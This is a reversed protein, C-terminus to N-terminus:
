AIRDATGVTRARWGIVVALVLMLMANAPHFAAVGPASTRANPLATQVIYLVFLLVSLSIQGRPLRGLLAAVLVVLALVGMVTYGFSRHAEFDGAGGLETLAQGALYGQVLVGGAFLWAAGIHIWRGWAKMARLGGISLCGGSDILRRPLWDIMASRSPQSQTVRSSPDRNM